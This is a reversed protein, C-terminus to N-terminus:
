RQLGNGTLQKHEKQQRFESLSDSFKPHAFRNSWTFTAPLNAARKRQMLAVVATFTKSQSGSRFLKDTRMLRQDLHCFGRACVLRKQNRIKPLALRLVESSVSVFSPSQFVKQRWPVGVCEITM